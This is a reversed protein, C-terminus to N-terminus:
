KADVCKIEFSILAVYFLVFECSILVRSVCNM